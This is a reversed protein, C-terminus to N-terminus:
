CCKKKKEKGQNMLFYNNQENKEYYDTIVKENNIKGFNGKIYDLILEEVFNKLGFADNLASSIKLKMGHKKAFDEAEEELVIQKDFLDSKNGIIAMVCNEKIEDKVSNIWFDLEQFSKRNDISFVFIIIKSNKMFMKNLSRYSKQGATDWLVYPYEKNQYNFTGEYYSSSISSYSNEQFPKGMVVNIINTKGVGSEGLFIIKLSSETNTNDSM